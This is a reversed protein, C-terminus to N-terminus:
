APEGFGATKKHIFHLNKKNSTKRFLGGTNQNNYPGFFQRKKRCNTVKPYNSLALIEISIDPIPAKAARLKVGPRKQGQM